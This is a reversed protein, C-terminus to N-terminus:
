GVIGSWCSCSQKHSVQPTNSPSPAASIPPLSVLERRLLSAKHVQMQNMKDRYSNSSFQGVKSNEGYVHIAILSALVVLMFSVTAKRTMTAKMQKVEVKCLVWLSICLHKQLKIYFNTSTVPRPRHVHFSFPKVSKKLFLSTRKSILDYVFCWM